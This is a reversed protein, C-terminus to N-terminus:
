VEYVQRLFDLKWEQFEKVLEPTREPLKSVKAEEDLTAFMQEFKVLVDDVNHKGNKVELLLEANPRPFVLKGTTVLEVAQEAVRLAHSLAKYDAGTGSFQKVRHGYDELTLHLSHAVTFVKNTLPYTKGCVELAPADEYGGKANKITTMKVHPLALVRSLDVDALRRSPLEGNHNMDALEKDLPDLEMLEKYALAFTAHRDAKVGYNKAQGVAYGMMKKVDRTVFRSALQQFKPLLPAMFMTSDSFEAKGQLLAFLVEVAYTQGAFVDDLFVQLPLYETETEGALMKDSAGVGEPKEKRNTLKVNMLLDDLSPLCVAKYDFDSAPTSTGYLHSGTLVSFLVTTKNVKM